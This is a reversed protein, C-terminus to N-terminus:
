MTFIVIDYCFWDLRFFFFYDLRQKYWCKWNWFYIDKGFVIGSKAIQAEGNTWSLPVPALVESSNRYRRTEWFAYHFENSSLYLCLSMGASFFQQSAKKEKHAYVTCETNRKETVSVRSSFRGRLCEMDLFSITCCDFRVSSSLPIVRVCNVHLPVKAFGLRHILQRHIVKGDEWSWIQVCLTNICM